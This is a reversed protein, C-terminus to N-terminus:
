ISRCCLKCFLFPLICLILVVKFYKSIVHNKENKRWERERERETQIDIERKTKRKRQKQRM